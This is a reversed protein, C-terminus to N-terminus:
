KTRWQVLFRKWLFTSWIRFSWVIAVCLVAACLLLVTTFSLGGDLLLGFSIPGLATSLVMLTTFLSRVSGIITTGYIEALLANKITGGAGNSFGFLFLAMPYALPQHYFALIFIGATYPILVFPFMRRATWRDVLPGSLLMALAGAAAFAAISGAVWTRDWGRSDGLQVQFFLIATNLYAILFVAPIIIWFYRTKLLKLPNFLKGSEKDTDDILTTGPHTVSRDQKRLLLVVIPMVFFLLSAASVQLSTRWGFSAILLAIVFPLVAEGAPHGLIALSIAKGRNGDYARAMTSVATHGMLGQGFLRLGFFGLLVLAPHVAFSLTLLALFLGTLVGLTFRMLPWVDVYRGMWTLALASGLTGAAYLSSLETNSLDLVKGLEPVYLSVLFTQGFSSFFALLFGFFLLAANHRIFKTFARM